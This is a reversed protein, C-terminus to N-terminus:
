KASQRSCPLLRPRSWLSILVPFADAETSGKPSDAQSVRGSGQFVFQSKRWDLIQYFQGFTLSLAKWEMELRLTVNRQVDLKAILQAAGRGRPRNAGPRGRMGALRSSAVM